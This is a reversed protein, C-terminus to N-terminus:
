FNIGLNLSATRPRPWTFGSIGGANDPDAGRYGTIILANQITASISIDVSNGSVDRFTHGLSVYDLRGFSGNELHYDSRRVPSNLGSEYVISTINRLSGNMTLDGYNGYVSQINYNYNGALSSASFSFEWNRYRFSSWIGAIYEPDSSQACYMDEMDIISNNDSDVYLGEVPMGNEDYVQKLLYFTNLPKGVQHVQVMTSWYNTIDGTQIRTINEGLYKVRNGRVTFHLAADWEFEKGNCFSADARLEIGRTVADGSNVLITYRFPIIAETLMDQNTNLFANLSLHLLNESLSMRLGTTFFHGSEPRLDRSLVSTSTKFVPAKPAYNWALNLVLGNVLMGSPFFQEAAIDWEAALSASIANRNEPIFETFSDNRLGAILYFRDYFSLNIRGYVSERYKEWTSHVKERIISTDTFDTRLLRKESELRNLYYGATVNLKGNIKKFSTSYGVWLDISGSKLSESLSTIQGNTMAIESEPRKTDTNDDSYSVLAARLGIKVKNIFPLRYSISLNGSLQNIRGLNETNNLVAVPNIFYRSSTYGLEPDFDTFVPKTPDAIVAYYPLNTTPSLENGITVSGIMNIKLQDNLLSPNIAGMFTTKRSSTSEITGQALNQGASIRFPFSGLSGYIGLHHDQSFATRYIENQWNTNAIGAMALTEPQDPYMEFLAARVQDGSLVGYKKKVTSIAAQGNYSLHLGSKGKKTEILIAGNRSYSGYESAQGENLWSISEIDHPNLMLPMGTFPMGDVVILPALSSYFSANRLSTIEYGSAPSGDIMRITLGPIRGAILGEANFIMGRNFSKDSLSITGTHASVTVGSAVCDPNLVISDRDGTVDTSQGNVSLPVSLMFLMLLHTFPIVGIGSNGEVPLCNNIFRAIM